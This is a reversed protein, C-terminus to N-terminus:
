NLAILKKLVKYTEKIEIEIFSFTFDNNNIVNHNVGKEKFYSIGKKLKSITELGNHDILKLEGNEM